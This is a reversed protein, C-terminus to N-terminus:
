SGIGWDLTPFVVWVVMLVEGQIDLGLEAWVPLLNFSFHDPERV